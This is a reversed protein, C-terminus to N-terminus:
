GLLARLALEYSTPGFGSIVGMAIDSLYSHHRFPERAYVNSLHVEVFPVEAALLADRIGISIHTLAAANIVIGDSAGRLQQIKDILHGEHNSQFCRVVAGLESGLAILQENIDELTDHGYVEPQRTGLMNLNPGHLIDIMPTM